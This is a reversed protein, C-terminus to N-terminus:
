LEMEALVCQENEADALQVKWCQAM